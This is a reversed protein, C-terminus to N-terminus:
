PEFGEMARNIRGSMDPVTDGNIVAFLLRKLETNEEQLEHIEAICLDLEMREEAPNDEPTM